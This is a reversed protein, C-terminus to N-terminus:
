NRTMWVAMVLVYAVMSHHVNCFIRAVGPDGTFDWSITVRQFRTPDLTYDDPDTATGGATLSILM